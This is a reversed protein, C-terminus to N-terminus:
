KAERSLEGFSGINRGEYSLVLAWDLGAGASFLGYFAPRRLQPVHPLLYAYVAAERRLEEAGNDLATKIVLPPHGPIGHDLRDATALVGKVCTGTRGAGLWATEVIYFRMKDDDDDDDDNGDSNSRIGASSLVDRPVAAAAALAPPLLLRPKTPDRTAAAAEPQFHLVHRAPTEM